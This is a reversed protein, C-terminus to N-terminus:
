VSPEADDDLVRGGAEVTQVMILSQAEEITLGLQDAIAKATEGKDGRGEHMADHTASVRLKKLISEDMAARYKAARERDQADLVAGLNQAGAKYYELKDLLFEVIRAEDKGDDHYYFGHSALRHNTTQVGIFEHILGLAEKATDISNLVMKATDTDFKVNPFRGDNVGRVIDVLANSSQMVGEVFEVSPRKETVIKPKTKATM